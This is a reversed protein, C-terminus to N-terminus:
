NINIDFLVDEGMRYHDPKYSKVASLKIYRDEIFSPRGGGLIIPCLCVHLKDLLNKKMFYSITKGGGEIYVLTRKRSKLLKTMLKLDGSLHTINLKLDKKKIIGKPDFVFVKPSNGKVLRTTLKPKDEIYTNAGVIIFDSIARLMHIHELNEKGSIYKSEGSQTAIYGDLSQAIHAIYRNKKNNSIIPLFIKFLNEAHKNILVNSEKILNKKLDYSIFINNKDIKENITLINKRVHPTDKNIKLILSWATKKTISIKPM